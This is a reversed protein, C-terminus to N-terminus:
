FSSSCIEIESVVYELLCRPQVNSDLEKVTLGLILSLTIPSNRIAFKVVESFWNETTSNPWEALPLPGETASLMLLEQLCHDEVLKGMAQLGEPTSGVTAVLDDLTSSNKLDVKLKALRAPEFEDEDERLRFNDLMSATEELIKQHDLKVGSKVLNQLNFRSRKGGGEEVDGEGEVGGEGDVVGEEAEEAFIDSARLQKKPQVAEVTPEGAKRKMKFDFDDLKIGEIGEKQLYAAVQTREKLMRPTQGDQPITLYFVRQGPKEVRRFGPPSNADMHRCHVLFIHLINLLLIIFQCTKTSYVVNLQFMSAAM